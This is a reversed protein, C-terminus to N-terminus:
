GDAGEALKEIKHELTDLFRGLYIREQMFNEYHRELEDYSNKYYLSELKSSAREEKDKVEKYYEQMYELVINLRSVEDIRDCM